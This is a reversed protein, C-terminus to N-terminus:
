NQNQNEQTKLTNEWLPTEIACGNKMRMRKIEVGFNKAKKKELIM